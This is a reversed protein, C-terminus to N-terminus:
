VFTWHFSSLTKSLERLLKFLLNKVLTLSNKFEEHVKKRVLVISHSFEILIQKILQAFHLALHFPLYLRYNPQFNWNLSSSQVAFLKRTISINWGWDVIFGKKSRREACLLLWANISTSSYNRAFFLLLFDSLSIMVLLLTQFSLHCCQFSM